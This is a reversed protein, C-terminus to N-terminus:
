DSIISNFKDVIDVGLQWFQDSFHLTDRESPLDCKLELEIKEFYLDGRTRYEKVTHVELEVKYKTMPHEHPPNFHVVRPHHRILYVHDLLGKSIEIPALRGDPNNERKRVMEVNQYEKLLNNGRSMRQKSQICYRVDLHNAEPRSKLNTSLDCDFWTINRHKIVNPPKLESNVQVKFEPINKEKGKCCIVYEEDQSKKIKEPNADDRRWGMGELTKCIQDLSLKYMTPYFSSKPLKVKVKGKKGSEEDFYDSKNSREIPRMSTPVAVRKQKELETEDSDDDDDDAGLSQLNLNRKCSKAIAKQLDDISMEAGEYTCNFLYIYGLRIYCNKRGYKREESFKFCMQLQRLLSKQYELKANYLLDNGDILEEPSKLIGQMKPNKLIHQINSSKEREKGVKVLSLTDYISKSGKYLLITGGGMVYKKINFFPTTTMDASISQFQDMANQIDSPEGSIKVQLCGRRAPYISIKVNSNMSIMSEVYAENGHIYRSVLKDLNIIKKKEFLCRKLFVKVSPSSALTHHAITFIEQLFITHEEEALPNIDVSPTRENDLPCLLYLRGGKDKQRLVTALVKSYYEFFKILYYGLSQSRSRELISVWWDVPKNDVPADLNIKSLDLNGEETFFNIVMWILSWTKLNRSNTQKLQKVLLGTERGWRIVVFLVQFIMPYRDFINCMMATKRIGGSDASIDCYLKNMRFRVIPVATKKVYEVNDADMPQSSVSNQNYKISEATSRTSKLIKEILKFAPDHDIEERYQRGYKMINGVRIYLDLDSQTLDFLMMSSSGFMLVSLDLFQDGGENRFLRALDDILLIRESYSHVLSIKNEDVFDIVSQSMYDSQELGSKLERKPQFCKVIWYFSLAHDLRVDSHSVYYWAAVKREIQDNSGRLKEEVTLGPFERLFEDKFSQQIRKYNGRIEDVFLKHYRFSNITEKIFEVLIDEEREIDYQQLLSKVLYKYRAYTDKADKLYAEYGDVLRSEDVYIEPIFQPVAKLVSAGQFMKGLVKQSIWYSKRPMSSEMFHPYRGFNDLHETSTVEKPLKGHIGTKVADVEIFHQKALEVCLPHTPSLLDCLAMHSLAIRGLSGRTINTLYQEVLEARGGTFIKEPAGPLDEGLYPNEETVYCAIEKDFCVFYRDGDLDSGSCQKFNPVDGQQSFAIVDIYFNQLHPLDVAELVRVDGPHLCPNKCVLIKGIIVERSGNEHSIQVFVQNPKLEGSEDSIGMLTRANEIPIFCKDQIKDLKKMYCCQLASGILPDNLALDVEDLANDLWSLERLIQKRIQPDHFMEALKALAQQQLEMFYSDPVGLGNFLTIVQRNLYCTKPGSVSIVEIIRNHLQDRNPQFKTMKKRLYVGEKIKPHVSLVGKSGGIRIQFASTTSPYGGASCVKRATEQGIYGVGETFNHGNREIDELEYILDADLQITPMTSPFVLSLCRLAKRSSWNPDEGTLSKRIARLTEEIKATDEVCYFWSTFNLAQSNSNGLYYFVGFGPVHIGHTMVHRFYDELLEQYDVNRSQLDEESFQVTMFRDSNYLRLCRNGLQLRPKNFIVRSPTVFASKVLMYNKPVSTPNTKPLMSLDMEILHDYDDFEQFDM